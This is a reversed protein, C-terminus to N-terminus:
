PKPQWFAVEGGEPSSVVTRWGSPGERPELLVSGGLRRARESVDELCDVEVYPLWLARRTGCQVIGGGVECGLDLSLYSRSAVEVPRARWGFLQAYFASAGASDGTHLELHVMRERRPVITSMGVHGRGLRFDMPAEEM